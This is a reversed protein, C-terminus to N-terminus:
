AISLPRVAPILGRAKAALLVALVGTLPIGFRAAVRRARREDILLADAQVELALVIAEAEGRDIEPPLSAVRAQDLVRVRRIWEARRVADAGPRGEGTAEAFVGDPVLVEGYLVRLLQLEGVAALAILPSADSVVIM